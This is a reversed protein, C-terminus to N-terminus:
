GNRLLPPSKAPYCRVRVAARPNGRGLSSLPVATFVLIRAATHRTIAMSTIWDNGNVGTGNTWGAAAAVQVPAFSVTTQGVVGAAFLTSAPVRVVTLTVTTFLLPDVHVVKEPVAFTVTVSAAAVNSVEFLAANELPTAFITTIGSVTPEM